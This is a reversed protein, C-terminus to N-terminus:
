KVNVNMVALRVTSKIKEDTIETPLLKTQATNQTERDLVTIVLKGEEDYEFTLTCKAARIRTITNTM